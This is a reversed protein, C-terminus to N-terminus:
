EEDTIVDGNNDETPKPSHKFMTKNLVKDVNANEEEQMRNIEAKVDDIISLVKLQTEKSVVGELTSATAAEEQLNRPENRTFKFKLGKWAYVDSVNTRLSSFVKYRKKLSKEIKRDFMTALNKMAQLKYSLAVGSTVNGFSDDSINAIMTTQFILRELRDLLNEQTGDATPKSLFQVVVDRANDTGFINILRNDRIREVGEDDVEAGLIAMYVEAFADVDNAKEAITKDYTELLGAVHEYLGSRENNIRWEIVPIYGYPNVETDSIYDDTFHITQAPTMIEGYREGEGGKKNARNGYIVAFLAKSKVTDDYVVFLHKPDCATVRTKSDEDQYIREFAHGFICAMKAMESDHDSIENNSVFDQIIENVNEDDHTVKIPIGYAYGTFTDTIYKSFNVALRNDPKWEEKEPLNFIDHFGKYLNELYEYRPLRTEHLEIFEKIVEMSVGNEVRAPDCILPEPLKYLRKTKAM